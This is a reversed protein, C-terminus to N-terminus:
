LLLVRQSQQHLLQQLGPARETLWGITDLILASFYYLRKILMCAFHLLYVGSAYAYGSDFNPSAL